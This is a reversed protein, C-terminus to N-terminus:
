RFDFTGGILGEFFEHINSAMRREEELLFVPSWDNELSCTIFDSYILIDGIVFRREGDVKKMMDSHSIVEDTGWICIQSKQDYESSVFGNFKLLLDSFFPHLSIHLSSELYALKNITASKNLKVNRAQLGVFVEETTMAPRKM